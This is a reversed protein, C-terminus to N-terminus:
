KFLFTRLFVNTQFEIWALLSNRLWILKAKPHELNRQFLTLKLVSCHSIFPCIIYTQGSFLEMLRTQTFPPKNMFTKNENYVYREQHVTIVTNPTSVIVIQQLVIM